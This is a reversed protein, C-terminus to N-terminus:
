LSSNIKSGNPELAISNIVNKQKRLLLFIALIFVWLFKLGFQLEQLENRVSSPRFPKYIQRVLDRPSRALIALPPRIETQRYIKRLHGCNGLLLVLDCGSVITCEHKKMEQKAQNHEAYM